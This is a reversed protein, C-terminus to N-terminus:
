FGLVNAARTGESVRSVVWPLPPNATSAACLPQPSPASLKVVCVLPPLPQVTGARTPAVLPM